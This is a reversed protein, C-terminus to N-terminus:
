LFVMQKKIPHPCEILLLCHHKVYVLNLVLSFFFFFFLRSSIFTKSTTEKRVPQNGHNFYRWLPALRHANARKNGLVTTCYVRSEVFIPNIPIDVSHCSVETMNNMVMFYLDFM